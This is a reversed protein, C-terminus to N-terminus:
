KQDAEQLSSEDSQPQRRKLAAEYACGLTEDLLVRGAHRIALAIEALPQALDKRLRPDFALPSFDRRLRDLSQECAARTAGPALGLIKFYDDRRVQAHKRQIRRKDILQDHALSRQGDFDALEPQFVQLMALTAYVPQLGTGVQAAVEAITRRGDLQAVIAGESGALGLRVEGALAPAVTSRPGVAVELAAIPLRRIADRVLPELLAPARLATPESAVEVHLANEQLLDFLMAGVCRGLLAELDTAKIWGSRALAACEARPDADGPFGVLDEPALSGDAALLRAALGPAAGRPEV